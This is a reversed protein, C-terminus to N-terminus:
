KLHADRYEQILTGLKNEGPFGWFRDTKLNVLTLPASQLLLKRLDDDADFKYKICQRMIGTKMVDWQEAGVFEKEKLKSGWKHATIGTMRAVRRLRKLDSRIHPKLKYSQYLAEPGSWKIGDSTTFGKEQYEFTSHCNAFEPAWGWHHGYKKNAAEIYESTFGCAESVIGHPVWYGSIEPERRTAQVFFALLKGHPIRKSRLIAPVQEIALYLLPTEPCNPGRLTASLNRSEIMCHPQGKTRVQQMDDAEKPAAM